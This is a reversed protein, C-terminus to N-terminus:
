VVAWHRHHSIQYTLTVVIRNRGLEIWEDGVLVHAGVGDLISHTVDNGDDIRGSPYGTGVVVLHVTQSHDNLISDRCRRDFIGVRWRVIWVIGIAVNARFSVVVFIAIGDGRDIRVTHDGAGIVIRKVARHGHNM